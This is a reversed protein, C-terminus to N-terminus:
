KPERSPAPTGNIPPHARRVEPPRWGVVRSEIVDGTSENLFGGDVSRCLYPLLYTGVHDECLVQVVTGVAPHSETVFGALRSSRTAM